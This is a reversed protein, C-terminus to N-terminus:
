RHSIFRRKELRLCLKPEVCSSLSPILCSSPHRNTACPPFLFLVSNVLFKWAFGAFIITVWSTLFNGAMCPVRFNMIVFTKLNGGRRTNLYTNQTTVGYLRRPPYWSKPPVSQILRWYINVVAPWHNRKQAPSDLGYGCATNGLKINWRTMLDTTNLRKQERVGM